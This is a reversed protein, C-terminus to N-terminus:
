RKAQSIISFPLCQRCGMALPLQLDSPDEDVYFRKLDNRLGLSNLGLSNLSGGLRSLRQRVGLKHGYRIFIFPFSGLCCRHCIRQYPSPVGDGAAARLATTTAAAATVHPPWLAARGGSRGAMTQGAGAQWGAIRGQM